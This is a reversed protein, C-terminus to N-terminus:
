QIEQQQQKCNQMAVTGGRLWWRHESGILFHILFANTKAIVTHTHNTPSGIGNRISIKRKFHVVAKRPSLNCGFISYFSASPQRLFANCHNFNCRRLKPRKGTELGDNDIKWNIDRHAICILSKNTIVQGVYSDHFSNLTVPHEYLACNLAFFSLNRFSFHCQRSATHCHVMALMTDDTSHSLCNNPYQAKLCFSDSHYQNVAVNQLSYIQTKNRNTFPRRVFHANSEIRKKRRVIPITKQALQM